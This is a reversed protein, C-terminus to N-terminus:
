ALEDEAFIHITFDQETYGVRCMASTIRADDGFM